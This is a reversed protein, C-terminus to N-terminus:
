EMKWERAFANLPSDLYILIGMFHKSYKGRLVMELDEFYQKVEKGATWTYNRQYVPIVFQSGVSNRLFELLGTKIPPQHENM